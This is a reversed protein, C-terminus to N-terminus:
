LWSYFYDSWSMFFENWIFLFFIVGVQIIRYAIVRNKLHFKM